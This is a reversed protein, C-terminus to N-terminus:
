RLRAAMYGAREAAATLLSVGFAPKSAMLELFTRRDIALLSCDVEAVASAARPAADILAMEGFVGGPGVRELVAGGVRIAVRGELVVYMLIGTQGERLIVRKADYFVPPTADLEGKLEALLKPEFVVAEKVAADAPLVDRDVLQTVVERLRVIMLHMLMLAFEPKARLAQQFQRDDLAIVRCTSKATATASRPTHSISAMEGFIGGALVPPLARGNSSLAVEGELLLYMRDRKFLLRNAKQQEAFIVAGAAVSEPKGASEFFARAVEINWGAGQVADNAAAESM